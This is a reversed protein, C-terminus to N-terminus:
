PVLVLVPNLSVIRTLPVVVRFTRADLALGVPRDPTNADSLTMGEDELAARITRLATGLDCPRDFDFWRVHKGTGM